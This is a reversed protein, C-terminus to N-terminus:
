GAEGSDEAAGCTNSMTEAGCTATGTAPIQSGSQTWEQGSGCPYATCLNEEGDAVTTQNDDGAAAAGAAGSIDAAKTAAAATEAADGDAAPVAAAAHDPRRSLADAMNERGKKYKITM